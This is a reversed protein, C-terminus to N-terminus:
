ALQQQVALRNEMKSKEVFARWQEASMHITQYARGPPTGPLDEAHQKQQKVMVCPVPAPAAPKRPKASHRKNHLPNETLIAVREATLAETRDAYEEVTIRSIDGAWGSGKAHQSLRQVVSLSIGM